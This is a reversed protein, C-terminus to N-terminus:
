GGHRDGPGELRVAEAIVELPIKRDVSGGWESDERLVSIGRGEAARSSSSSVDNNGTTRRERATIDVKVFDQVGDDGDRDGSYAGGGNEEPWCPEEVSTPRSSPLVGPPLSNLDWDKGPSRMPSLDRTNGYSVDLLCAFLSDTSFPKKLRKKSSSIPFSGSRTTRFSLIRTLTLFVHRPFVLRPITHVYSTCARTVM